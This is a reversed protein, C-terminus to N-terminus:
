YKPDCTRTRTYGDNCSPEWSALQWPECVGAGDSPCPLLGGAGGGGGTSAGGGGTTAATSSAGVTTTAAGSADVEDGGCGSGALSAAVTVAACRLLSSM